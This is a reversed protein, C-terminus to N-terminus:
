EASPTDKGVSKLEQVKTYAKFGFAYTLLTGAMIMMETSPKLNLLVLTLESPKVVKDRLLAMATEQQRFTILLVLFILLLAALLAIMCMIRNSSRSIVGNPQQEEFIGIKKM